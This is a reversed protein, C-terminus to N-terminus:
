KGGANQPPTSFATWIEAWTKYKDPPAVPAARRGRTGSRRGRVGPQPTSASDIIKQVSALLATIACRAYGAMALAEADAYRNQHLIGSVRATTIPKRQSTTSGFTTGYWFPISAFPSGNPVAPNIAAVKPNFQNLLVKQLATEFQEGWLDATADGNRVKEERAKFESRIQIVDSLYVKESPAISQYNPKLVWGALFKALGLLGTDNTDAAIWMQGVVCSQWIQQQLGIDDGTAM